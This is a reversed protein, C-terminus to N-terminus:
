WWRVLLLTLEYLVIMAASLLLMPPLSWDPTAIAAIVLISVYVIRWNKRLSAKDVVGIKILVLIIAPTEFAVGFAVLFLIVVNVFESVNLLRVIQGQDQSLLWKVGIPMIYFYSFAVGGVFLSVMLFVLPYLVRKERGKLAPSLFALLQYFIYPSSIIFGGLVGLKFKIMFPEMVNRYTLTLQPLTTKLIQLFKMGYFYGAASTIVLLIVSKLLRSRLEDIHELIPMRKEAM